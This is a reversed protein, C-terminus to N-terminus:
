GVDRWRDVVMELDGKQGEETIPGLSPVRRGGGRRGKRDVRYM